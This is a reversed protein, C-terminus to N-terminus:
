VSCITPLTLHTYSVPVPVAQSSTSTPSQAQQPSAVPPNVQGESLVEGGLNPDPQAATQESESGQGPEPLESELPSVTSPQTSPVGQNQGEQTVPSVVAGGGQATM